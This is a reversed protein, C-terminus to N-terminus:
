EIPQWSAYIEEQLAPLDLVVKRHNGSNYRVPVAQGPQFRRDLSAFIANNAYGVKTWDSWDTKFTEEATVGDDFAIRAKFEYASTWAPEAQVHQQMGAAGTVTGAARGPEIHPTLDLIVGRAQAGERLLKNHGFM